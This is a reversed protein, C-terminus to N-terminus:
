YSHNTMGGLRNIHSIGVGHVNKLATNIKPIDEKEIERVLEAM